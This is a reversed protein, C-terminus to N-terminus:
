LVADECCTRYLALCRMRVALGTCREGSGPVPSQQLATPLEPRPESDALSFPSLTSGPSVEEGPYRLPAPLRRCPTFHPSRPAMWHLPSPLSVRPPDQGYLSFWFSRSNFTKRTIMFLMWHNFMFRHRNQQAPFHVLQLKAGCNRSLPAWHHTVRSHLGLYWQFACLKLKLNIGHKQQQYVYLRAM